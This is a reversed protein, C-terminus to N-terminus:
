ARDPSVLRAAAGGRLRDEGRDLRDGGVGLRAQGSAPVGDACGAGASGTLVEGAEDETWERLTQLRRAVRSSEKPPAGCLPDVLEVAGAAGALGARAMGRISARPLGNRQALREASRGGRGAGTLGGVELGMLRPAAFGIIDRMLYADPAKEVLGRLSMTGDSM